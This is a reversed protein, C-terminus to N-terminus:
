RLRTIAEQELWMAMQVRWLVGLSIPVRGSDQLQKTSWGCLWRCEEGCGQFPAGNLINIFGCLFAPNHICEDTKQTFWENKAWFFLRNVWKQHTVQTIQEHNSMGESRLSRNAWSRENGRLLTLLNNVTAWKDQAVQAIQESLESPILSDKAKKLFKLFVTFLYLFYSTKQGTAWKKHAFSFFSHNVWFVSCSARKDQAIQECDSMQGSCVSCIAWMWENTM